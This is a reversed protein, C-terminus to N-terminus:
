RRRRAIRIKVPEVSFAMNYLTPKRTANNVRQQAQAVVAVVTGKSDFVPGGSYGPIGVGEFGLYETNIEGEKLTAKELIKAQDVQVASAISRYGLYIVTDDKQVGRFEGIILPRATIVENTSLIALDQRTWVYVPRLVFSKNLEPNTPNSAPKYLYISKDIVHACTVVTKGDGVVFGTGM